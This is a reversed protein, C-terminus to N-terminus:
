DGFARYKPLLRVPTRLADRRFPEGLEDNCLIELVTPRGSAVAARLADGIRDPADVTVGDAGMARAIGAFSPNDLNSGVFRSGYYDIQNRKEAGWQRNNFVVAVVAIRDRVCTMIETQSMGWAGDGVYAIAPRDPAAVKCGMATPLAYGCNGWMMPAFMSLPEDFRLYSNAVSCINGIDTTVM